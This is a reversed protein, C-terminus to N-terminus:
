QAKSGSIQSAPPTAFVTPLLSFSYLLELARAPDPGLLMGNLESLVREKSVKSCLAERVEATALTAELV